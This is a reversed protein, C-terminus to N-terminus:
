VKIVEAVFYLSNDEVALKGSVVKFSDGPNLPIHIEHDFSAEPITLIAGGENEWVQQLRFYEIVSKPVDLKVKLCDM